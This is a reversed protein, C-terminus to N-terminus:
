KRRTNRGKKDPKKFKRKGAVRARFYATRDAQDTFDYGFFGTFWNGISGEYKEVLVSLMQALGEPSTARGSRLMEFRGAAVTYNRHRKGNLANLIASLITDEAYEAIDSEDDDADFLDSLKLPYFTRTVGSREEIIVKRGKVRIKATDSTAPFFGGKIHASKRGVYPSSKQLTEKNKASKSSKFKYGAAKAATVTKAIERIRRKQWASLESIPTTRLNSNPELFPRILALRQKVLTGKRSM